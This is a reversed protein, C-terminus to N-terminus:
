SAHGHALLYAVKIRCYDPQTIVSYTNLLIRLNEIGGDLGINCHDLEVLLVKGIERSFLM